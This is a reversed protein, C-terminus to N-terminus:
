PSKAAVRPAPPVSPERAATADVAAFDCPAPSCLAKIDAGAFMVSMKINTEYADVHRCTALSTTSRGNSSAIGKMCVVGDNPSVNSFWVLGTNGDLLRMFSGMSQLPLVSAKKAEREEAKARALEAKEREHEARAQEADKAAQKDRNYLTLPVLAFVIAISIWLVFRGIKEVHDVTNTM